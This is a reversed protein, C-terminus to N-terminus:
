SSIGWVKWVCRIQYVLLEVSMRLVISYLFVIIAVFRCSLTSVVVKIENFSEAKKELHFPCKLIFHKM